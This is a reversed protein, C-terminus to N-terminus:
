EIAAPTTPRNLAGKMSRKSRRVRRSPTYAPKVTAVSSQPRAVFAWVRSIARAMPPANPPMEPESQRAITLSMTGGSRRAAPIPMMMVANAAAAAIPTGTPNCTACRHPQRIGKRPTAAIPTTTHHRTYRTTGGTRPCRCLPASLPCANRSNSRSALAPRPITKMATITSPCKLM